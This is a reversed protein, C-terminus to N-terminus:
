KDKLGIIIYKSHKKILTNNHELILTNACWEPDFQLLSKITNEEINNKDYYFIINVEKM